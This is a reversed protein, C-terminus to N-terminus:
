QYQYLMYQFFDVDLPSGLSCNMKNKEKKKIIFGM